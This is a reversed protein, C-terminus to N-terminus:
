QTHGKAGIGNRVRAVAQQAMAIGADAPVVLFSGLPNKINIVLLKGGRNMAFQGAFVTMHAKVFDGVGIDFFNIASGLAVNFLGGGILFKRVRVHNVFILGAYM